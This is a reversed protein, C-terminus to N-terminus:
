KVQDDFLWKSVFYKLKEANGNLLKKMSLIRNFDKDSIIERLQKELITYAKNKEDLSKQIVINIKDKEILKQELYNNRKKLRENYEILSKAMDEEKHLQYKVAALENKKCEIDEKLSIISEKAGIFKDELKKKEEKLMKLRMYINDFYARLENIECEKSEIKDRLCKEDILDIALSNKLLKQLFFEVQGNKDMVYIQKQMCVSQNDEKYAQYYAKQPLHGEFCMYVDIRSFSQGSDISFCGYLKCNCIWLAWLIKNLSILMCSDIKEAFFLETTERSEMNKYQYVVKHQQEHQAIFLCHMKDNEIVFTYDIYPFASKYVIDEKGWRNEAQYFIRSVLKYEEDFASNLMIINSNCGQASVYPCRNYYDLETVIQPADCRIGDEIVQQALMENYNYGDSINYLLHINRACFFARMYIPMIISHGMQALRKVKWEGEKLICLIIDGCIDQCLLYVIDGKQLVCFHGSSERYITNADSWCNDKYTQCFIGLEKNFRFGLITGDKEEIMYCDGAMKSMDEEAKGCNV